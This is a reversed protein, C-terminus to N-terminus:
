KGTKPWPDVEIELPAHVSYGVTVGVADPHAVFGYLRKADEISIEREFAFVSQHRLDRWPDYWRTLRELYQRSRSRKM